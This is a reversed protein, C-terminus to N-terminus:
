VISDLNTINSSKVSILTFASSYSSILEFFAVYTELTSAGISSWVLNVFSTSFDLSSSGINFVEKIDFELVSELTIVVLYFYSLEDIDM